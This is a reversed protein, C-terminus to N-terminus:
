EDNAGMDKFMARMTKDHLQFETSMITLVRTNEMLASTIKTLTAFCMYAMLLFAMTPFGVRDIFLMTLKMAKPVDSEMM